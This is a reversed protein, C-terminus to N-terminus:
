ASHLPACLKASDKVMSSEFFSHDLRYSVPKSHVTKSYVLKSKCAGKLMNFVPV